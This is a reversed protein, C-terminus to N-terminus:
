PSTTSPCLGSDPNKPELLLLVLGLSQADQHWVLWQVLDWWSIRVQAISITTSPPFASCCPCMGSIISKFRLKTSNLGLGRRGVCSGWALCSHATVQLSWEQESTRLESSMEKSNKVRDDGGTRGVDSQKPLLPSPGASLFPSQRM